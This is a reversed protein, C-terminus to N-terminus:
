PGVVVSGRRTCGDAEGVIVGYVTPNPPNVRISATTEGNPLWRYSVFGAPATLTFGAMPGPFPATTVPIAAESEFVGLVVDADAHAGASDAVRLRFSYEGETNSTGFIRGSSSDLVLGPPLSGSFVSWAYPPAGGSAPVTSDYGVACYAPALGLPPIDISLLPPGEKFRSVVGRFDASIGSLVPDGTVVDLQLPYIVGLSTQARTAWELSGDSGRRLILPFGNGAPGDSDGGALLLDDGPVVGAGRILVSAAAWTAGNSPDVYDLPGWLVGGTAGALKWSTISAQSGTRSGVVYVDGHSDLRFDSSAESDAGTGLLIPGWQVSGSGVSVRAVAISTVSGTSVTGAVIVDGNGAFRLSIPAGMNMAASAAITIPGWVASGDALSLKEVVLDRNSSGSRFGVIVGSSNALIARSDDGYGVIPTAWSQTGSTADRRELTFTSFNPLSLLVVGGQGDTAVAEVVANPAAVPNSWLGAGTSGDFKALFSSAAGARPAQTTGGFYVAGSSDTALALPWGNFYACQIAAPSVDRPGWIPQGTSGAYKTLTWKSCSSQHVFAADLIDGSPDAVFTSAYVGSSNGVIPSPGWRRSGTAGDYRVTVCVAYNLESHLPGVVEADGSPAIAVQSATSISTGTEHASWLRTGDRGSYKLTVLGAGTGAAVFVDGRGDLAVSYPRGAMTETLTETAPGWAVAGSRGDLKLTRLNVSPLSTPDRAGAPPYRYSIGSVIVNSSTDVAAAFARDLVGDTGWSVSWLVAGSAGAIKSVLFDSGSGGADTQYGAEVVDGASDIVFATLTASSSGTLAPGWLVAGTGGELKFTQVGAYGGGVFVNGQRDTAVSLNPISVAVPLSVPGWLISGARGDLKAVIVSGQQCTATVVVDGNPEFLVPLASLWIGAGCGIATAASWMPVGSIGDFLMASLPGGRTPGTISSLAVRGFPDIAGFASGSKGLSVNSLVAGAFDYRIAIPGLSGNTTVVMFSGDALFRNALPRPVSTPPQGEALTQTWVPVETTAARLCGAVLATVLAFATSFLILPRGTFPM